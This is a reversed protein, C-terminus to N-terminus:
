GYVQLLIINRNESDRSINSELHVFIEIIIHLLIVIYPLSTYKFAYILKISRKFTTKLFKKLKFM